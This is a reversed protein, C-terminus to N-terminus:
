LPVAEVVILKYKNTGLGIKEAHELCIHWDTEPHIDTFHDGHTHKRDSLLSNAIAPQKNVADVCARDLAVPDFSAFIGIDPIVPTDNGGYCDCFPSVDTVVSIHFQPRGKLVALAYEAMKCSLDKNTADWGFYPAHVPCVGVCRGCGVCKTYDVVAKRRTVTIAAQACSGM